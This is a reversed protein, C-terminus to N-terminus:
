ALEANRVIPRGICILTQPCHNETLRLLLFLKFFGFLLWVLISEISSLLNLVVM